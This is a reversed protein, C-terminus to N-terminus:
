SSSYGLPPLFGPIQVVFQLPNSNKLLSRSPHAIDQHSKISEEETSDLNRAPPPEKGLHGLVKFTDAHVSDVRVAYIKASADLTGAAMQLM